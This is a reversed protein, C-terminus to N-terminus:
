GDRRMVAETCGLIAQNIDRSSYSYYRGFQYPTVFYDDCWVMARNRSAYSGNFVDEYNLDWLRGDSYSMLLTYANDYANTKAYPPTWNKDAWLLSEGFNTCTFTKSGVKAIQGSKVCKAGNKIAAANAPAITMVLVAAILVSLGKINKNM